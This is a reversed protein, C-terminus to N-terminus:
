AVTKLPSVAPLPQQPAVSSARPRLTVLSGSRVVGLPGSKVFCAIGAARLTSAAKAQRYGVMIGAASVILLGGIGPLAVAALALLSAPVLIASMTHKFDSLVGTPAGGGAAVQAVGSVSLERSLGTPTARELTSQVVVKAPTSIGLGDSALTQPSQAAVSSRVPVDVAAPLLTAGIGRSGGRASAGPEMGPFGLLSALDSPMQSLSVGVVAVSTLMEQVATIVDTVPTPSTPLSVVVSPLAIVATAANEVASRVPAVATRVAVRPHTAPARTKSNPAAVKTPPAVVQSHSVVVAPDSAVETTVATTPGSVESAHEAVTAVAENTGATAPEQPDTTTVGLTMPGAPSDAVEQSVNSLSDSTGTNATGEVSENASIVASPSGDGVQSDATSGGTDPEAAAIAGGAGGVLLSASLIGVGLARRWRTTIM